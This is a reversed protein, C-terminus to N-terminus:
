AEAPEAPPREGVAALVPAYRDLRSAGLRRSLDWAARAVARLLMPERGSWRVTPVSVSLGAVAQDRHDYIALALCCVGANSEEHDEAYGLRRVRELEAALDPWNTLSNPTLAPFRYDRYLEALQADPLTALLAKGLATVHAPLRRGVASVLRLGDRGEAKALYVVDTGDLMALQSTEGTEASVANVALRGDRVVDHAEVYRAGLEHVGVGLRYRSGDGAREVLGGAVLATLIAHATGKPVGLERSLASVGDEGRDALHRLIAIATTVSRTAKSV